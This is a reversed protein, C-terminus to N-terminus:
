SSQAARYMISLIWIAATKYGLKCVNASVTYLQLGVLIFNDLLFAMQFIKDLNLFNFEYDCCVGVKM